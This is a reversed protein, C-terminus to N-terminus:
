AGFHKEWGLHKQKRIEENTVKFDAATLTSDSTVVGLEITKFNNKPLEYGADVELIVQYLKEQKLSELQVDAKIKVGFDDDMMTTLAYLAGFKSVLKSSKFDGKLALPRLFDCFDKTTQPDLEGKGWKETRVMDGAYGSWRLQGTEIMLLKSGAETLTSDPLDSINEDTLTQERLGVVCTAPTSTINQGETENYLSVNGSIIPTEFLECAESMRRLSSVFEGMINSKQPNGFNLCDTVAWPKFGKISLQVMPALVSDFGGLEPSLEMMLPRCGLVMGLPRGSEPLRVIGIPSSCDAVTKAGVRQDYQNYIWQRSCGQLSTLAANLDYDVSSEDDATEVWPAIEFPREYRPAGEVIDAPDIECVMDGKWYIQIEKEARVTGIEVAELGWKSFIAQIEPVNGPDCAMLMREQSESLLIEEPNMTQDRLPVKSLDLELGLGGGVSMEFSSSTIGAAGMDQVSEALGKKMVELCSEILLKEFFPDGIQVTPRKSESGEDFSESAMSAGHVGDKGTKAGVYVVSHGPTKIKSSVIQDDKGYYGLAFANVLNNTNYTKNFETQGSINPVGVCNGYFSIGSVVGNVLHELRDSGAEGFCLYNSLAIPRAGMTFIDRLIGGVGTAAGQFPEIFSPHNHSEMKFAVREGQGLDVVGANEGDESVVVDSKGYLNKLHIKSSKYSCHESWLSSFLAWEIGSLERDGVIGKARKHEDESLGYHKLKETLTM